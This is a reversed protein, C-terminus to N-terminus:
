TIAHSHPRVVLTLQLAHNPPQVGSNMGSELQLLCSERMSFVWSCLFRRLQLDRDGGDGAFLMSCRPHGSPPVMFRWTVSSVEM